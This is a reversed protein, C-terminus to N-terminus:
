MRERDYKTLPLPQSVEWADPEAAREKSIDDGNVPNDYPPMAKSFRHRRASERDPDEDESHDNVNIEESDSSANSAYGYASTLAGTAETAGPASVNSFARRNLAKFASNKGGMQLQQQRPPQTTPHSAQAPSGPPSADGTRPSGRGGFASPLHTSAAAGPAAGAAAGASAVPAAAPPPQSAPAPPRSCPPTPHQPSPHPSPSSPSSHKLLSMRQHRRWKARRNSFWVQVRAESLSTKSALRERTSVCPYHSKEFEKELEELQDPSFTTRNRRFKPQDSSDLSGSDEKGDVD